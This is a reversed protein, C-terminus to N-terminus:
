TEFVAVLEDTLNYKEILREWVPWLIAKNEADATLWARSFHKLFEGRHADTVLRAIADLGTLRAEYTASM